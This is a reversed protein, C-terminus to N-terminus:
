TLERERMKRHLVGYYLFFPPFLRAAGQGPFILAFIMFVFHPLLCSDLSNKGFVKCVTHGLLPIYITDVGNGGGAGGCGSNSYSVGEGLDSVAYMQFPRM